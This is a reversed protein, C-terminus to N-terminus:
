WCSYDTINEKEGCYPCVIDVGNGISTPTFIYSFPAFQRYPDKGHPRCAEHLQIFNDAGRKEIANLQFTAMM